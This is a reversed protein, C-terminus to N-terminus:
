QLDVQLLGAYLDLFEDSLVREFLSHVVSSEILHLLDGQFDLGNVVLVL